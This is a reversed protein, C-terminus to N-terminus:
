IMRFFFNFFDAASHGIVPFVLSGSRERLLAFLFGYSGTLMITIFDFHLQYENGLRFGHMLGFVMSTLIAGWGFSTGLFRFRIEFIKNLLGLLLGRYILEESVGPIIATYLLTNADFPTKGSSIGLTSATLFFFLIFLMSFKRSDKNQRIKLGIEDPMIIRKLPILLLLVFVVSYLKASWNFILNNNWVYTNILQIDPYTMTLAHFLNDVLGIAFFLVLLYWYKISRKFDILFSLLIAFGFIITNAIITPVM